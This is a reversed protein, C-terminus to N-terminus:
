AATAGLAEFPKTYMALSLILLFVFVYITIVALKYRIGNLAELIWIPTILMVVGIVLLVASTFRDMREDSYYSIQKADYEPAKVDM